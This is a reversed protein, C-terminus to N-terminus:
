ARSTSKLAYSYGYYRRPGAPYAWVSSASHGTFFTPGGAPTGCRVSLESVSYTAPDDPDDPDDPSSLCSASPTCKRVVTQM